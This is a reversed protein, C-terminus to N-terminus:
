YDWQTVENKVLDDAIKRVDQLKKALDEEVLINCATIRDIKIIFPRLKRGFRFGIRVAIVHQTMDM